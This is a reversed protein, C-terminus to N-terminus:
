VVRSSVAVPVPRSDCVGPLPEPEHQIDRSRAPHQPRRTGFRVDRVAVFATPDTIPTVQGSEASNLSTQKVQDATQSNNPANLSAGSATVTFPTGTNAGLTGNLQWGGLIRGAAGQSLFRKSKGFVPPGMGLRGSFQPPHRLGLAGRQSIMPAWNFLLGVRGDDDAMDIAKSYTYATKILLGHNFRRSLTQGPALPLAFQAM